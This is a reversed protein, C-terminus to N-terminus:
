QVEWVETKFLIGLIVLTPLYYTDIDPITYNIGFGVNILMMLILAIVLVRSKALLSYVGVVSFILIVPPFQRSVDRPSGRRRSM